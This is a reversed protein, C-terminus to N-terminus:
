IKLIEKEAYKLIKKAESLKKEDIDPKKYRNVGDKWYKDIDKLM